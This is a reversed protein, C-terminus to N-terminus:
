KKETEKYLKWARLTKEHRRFCKGCRSGEPDALWPLVHQCAVCRLGMETSEWWEAEGAAISELHNTPYLGKGNFCDKCTFTDSSCLVGSDVHQDCWMCM